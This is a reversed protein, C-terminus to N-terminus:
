RSFASKVGRVIKLGLNIGRYLNYAGRAIQMASEMRNAAKPLPATAIRISAILEKRKNCAEAQKALRRARLADLTDPASLIEDAISSM